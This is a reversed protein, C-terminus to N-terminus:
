IYAGLKKISSYLTDVAAVEAENLEKVITDAENKLSYVQNIANSLADPISGFAIWKTDYFEANHWSVLVLRSDIYRMYGNPKGYGIEASSFLSWTVGNDISECIQMSYVPPLNSDPVPRCLYLKGNIAQIDTIDSLQISDHSLVVQTWTLMDPSTYINTRDTLYYNGDNYVINDNYETGIDVTNWDILDTTVFLFGDYSATAVIINNMNTLSTMYVSEPVVSTEITGYGIDETFPLVYVTTQNVLFIFKGDIYDIDTVGDSNESFEYETTWNFGDRSTHLKITGDESSAAVWIGLQPIYKYCDTKYGNMIPKFSKMDYTACLDYDPSSNSTKIITLGNASQVANWTMDIGPNINNWNLSLPLTLLTNIDEESMEIQEVIGDITANVNALAQDYKVKDAAAIAQVEDKTYADKIGYGAITTPTNTVQEWSFSSADLVTYVEYGAESNLKTQDHVYYVVRSGEQLLIVIDGNQVHDLTLAYMEELSGVKVATEIAAQPIHKIDIVGSVIDSATIKVSGDNNHHHDGQAKSNWLAREEETVHIDKNSIHENQINEIESINTNMGAVQNAVQTNIVKYEEDMEAAVREVQKNLEDPGVKGHWLSKDAESAHVSADTIHTEIADHISDLNLSGVADDIYDYIDMAKGTPDYVSIKMNDQNDVTVWEAGNWIKMVIIPNDTTGENFMKLTNVEPNEPTEDISFIYSSQKAYQWDTLFSETSVSYLRYVIVDPFISMQTRIDGNESVTINIPHISNMVSSGNKTYMITYNGLALLQNLDIPSDKSSPLKTFGNGYVSPLGKGKEVAADIEPGNYRSKYDKFM